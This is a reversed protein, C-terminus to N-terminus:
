WGFVITWFLWTVFIQFVHMVQDEVLNLKKWNAKRTDIWCHWSANLILGLLYCITMIVPTGQYVCGEMCPLMVIFAWSFGHIILAMKYDDKYMSEDLNKIKARWWSKQKMSALIGQLNFDAIVHLFLMALLMIPANM